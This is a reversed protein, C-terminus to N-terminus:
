TPLERGLWGVIWVVLGKLLYKRLMELFERCKTPVRLDMLGKLGSNFGM